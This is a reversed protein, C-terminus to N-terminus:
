VTVGDSAPYSRDVKYLVGCGYYCASTTIGGGAAGYINGAEDRVINGGPTGGDAGGAFSFVVTYDGAADIKYLLGQDSAGGGSTVGYLSGAADLIVSSSPTVGDTSGAFAHLVTQQGAPSLKYVVGCGLAACPGSTDGGEGTTGYLNGASDIALGTTPTGGDAGGTFSYLVTEQGSPALKYVVGKGSAGGSRATGYLNGAADSIM